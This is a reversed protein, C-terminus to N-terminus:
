KREFQRKFWNHISPLLNYKIIYDNSRMFCDTKYDYLYMLNDIIYGYTTIGCDINFIMDPKYQKMKKYNIELKELSRLGIKDKKFDAISNFYANVFHSGFGLYGLFGEKYYVFTGSPYITDLLVFDILNKTINYDLINKNAELKYIIEFSLKSTEVCHQKMKYMRCDVELIPILSDLSMKYYKYYMNRTPFISQSYNMKFFLILASLLILRKM